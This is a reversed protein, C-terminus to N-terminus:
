LFRHSLSVNLLLRVSTGEDTHDIQLEGGLQEARYHMNNIGRPTHSPTNGNTHGYDIIDIYVKQNDIVGTALTMKKSASHKISNSIAEQVIRMIHLSHRPGMGKIEPLETVAWELEINASQLQDVLRMRMMGLLTPLDSLLPDLSDIVLRLDALSNQVKERVRIFVPEDYDRLLTIVSVLQGGIGDHMDRM